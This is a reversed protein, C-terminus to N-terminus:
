ENIIALYIDMTEEEEDGFPMKGCMFEYMMVAISWYDAKFTYGAGLIVEPAMYHPTGIITQTKDIINKATGFDILKCFGNSLVMVNEPKIDRFIIKKEHLYKIAIMVSAAYFRTQNKNLMGIDRMADFLEKGKIYDMLFYIYKKDKMAKVLRVIFPHDLKSLITREIELNSNLLSYLIQKCPMCKIAYFYGNKSSKVLCVSGYSGEGLDKYYVLDNLNINSDQLYEREKLYQLLNKDAVSEFDRKDMYYLEVEGHAKGSESFPEKFLLNREGFFDNKGKSYVRRSKQYFDVSGKKVIYFRTSEDGQSIINKNNQYKEVKLRKYLNELQQKTFNKFFDCEKLHDILSNKEELQKLSCKFQSKIDSNKLLALFSYPKCRIATTTKTNDEEFIERGFLLNNRKCIIKSSSAEMLEGEITVVILNCKPEGSRIIDTEREFYKLNFRNFIDDLFNINLKKFTPHNAFASKIYALAIVSRYNDGYLSKLWFVPISILNTKGSPVLETIRNSNALVELAGFSEGRALSNMIKGDKKLTAKGDKIIYISKSISGKEYLPKNDTYEERYVNESIKMKEDASAFALTPSKSISKNNDEFTVHLKHEVLNNFDEQEMLWLYCDTTTKVTCERNIGYLLAIDGFYNGRQLTTKKEGNIFVECTGNSIIYFNGPAEGQKFIEIKSKVSYLSMGKIIEQRIKRELARLFCHNVFCEEILSAEKSQENNECILKMNKKEKNAPDKEKGSASSTLVMSNKKEPYGDIKIQKLSKNGM